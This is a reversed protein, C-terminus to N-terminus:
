TVLGSGASLQAKGSAPQRDPNMILNVVVTQWKTGRHDIARPSSSTVTRLRNSFNCPPRIIRVSLGQSAVPVRINKLERPPQVFMWRTSDPTVWDAGTRADCRSILFVSAVQEGEDFGPATSVPGKQKRQFDVIISDPIYVILM